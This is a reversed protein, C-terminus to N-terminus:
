WDGGSNSADVQWNYRTIADGGWRTITVGLDQLNAATLGFTSVGYVYPSIAHRGATVDVALAPANADPAAEPPMVGIVAHGSQGLVTATIHVIGSAVGKVVGATSVRAIATDSSSWVVSDQAIAHGASDSVRATLALTSGPALDTDGPSVVLKTAVPGHAPDLSTGPSTCSLVGAAASVLLAITAGRTWDIHPLDACRGVGRRIASM